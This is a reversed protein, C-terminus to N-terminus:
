KSSSSKSEICKVVTEKKQQEEAYLKEIRLTIIHGDDGIKTLRVYSWDKPIIKGLSLSCTYGEHRVKRDFFTRSKSTGTFQKKPQM